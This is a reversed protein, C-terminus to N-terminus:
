ESKENNVFIKQLNGLIIISFVVNSFNSSCAYILYQNKTLDFIFTKISNFNKLKMDKFQEGRKRSNESIRPTLHRM